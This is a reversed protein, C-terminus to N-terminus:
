GIYPRRRRSKSISHADFPRSIKGAGPRCAASRGRRRAPEVEIIDHKAPSGRLIVPFVFPFWLGAAAGALVLDQWKDASDQLEVERDVLKMAVAGTAERCLVSRRCELESLRGPARHADPVVSRSGPRESRIARVTSVASVNPESILPCTSGALFNTIGRLVFLLRSGTATGPYNDFSGDDGIEILGSRYHAQRAPM